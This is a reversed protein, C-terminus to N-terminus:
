KLRSISSIHSSSIEVFTLHYALSVLRIKQRHLVKENETEENVIVIESMGEFFPFYLTLNICYQM